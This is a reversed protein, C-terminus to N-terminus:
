ESITQGKRRKAAPAVTISYTSGTKSVVTVSFGYNSNVYTQGPLWQANYLAYNPFARGGPGCAATDYDGPTSDVPVAWGSQSNFFCSGGIAGRNRQFEHIMVGDSVIGNDFQSTAGLGKVRAEVTFFRASNGSCPFGTLCIKILKQAAGLTLPLAELTVSASGGPSVQTVNQAPLWALHDVHPAIYGDGPETCTINSTASSNRSYYSGCIAASASRRMSMMDWPSDYAFYVWGSHPLGLSHGMEHVYTGTEQGWPPEWTAGYLKNDVASFYSGGWACCDLDNSLVFNINDYQQFDMGQARGLATGDNGIASLNACSSGWGCNAYHSKPHPLTLWGGPAGIGGVGGVDGLWSFQNYSVKKFFGNITAPINTGGPATDPNNMDTYFSPAHPLPRAEAEDDSFRLLLYIVKRTGSVAAGATIPNNLPEELNDVSFAFPEAARAAAVPNAIARGLVEVPRGQLNVALSELGNLALRIRSRGAFEPPMGQPGPRELWVVAVAGANLDPHPDGWEINLIGAIRQPPIPQQAGLPPGAALMMLVLAPISFSRRLM